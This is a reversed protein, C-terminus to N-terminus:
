RASQTRLVKLDNFGGIAERMLGRANTDPWATVVDPILLSVREAPFIRAIVRITQGIRQM